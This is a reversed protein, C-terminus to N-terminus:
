DFYDKIEDITNWGDKGGCVRGDFGLRRLIILQLGCIGPQLYRIAESGSIRIRGTHAVQDRLKKLIKLDLNIKSTNLRSDTVLRELRLLLKEQDIPTTLRTGLEGDIDIYNKDIKWARYMTGIREKLDILDSPLDPEQTWYGASCEWAQVTRLIRDEIFGHRTQNLYDTITFLNDKEVKSLRTWTPLTTLLYKAIEFDPIIQEGENENKNMAREVLRSTQGTWFIQRDFTVKRGIAISLLNKVDVAIDRLKEEDAPGMIALSSIESTLALEAKLKTLRDVNDANSILKIEYGDFSLEVTGEVSYSKLLFDAKDVMAM